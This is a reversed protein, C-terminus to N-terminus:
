WCLQRGQEILIRTIEPSNPKLAVFQPDASGVTVVLSLHRVFKSDVLTVEKQTPDTQAVYEFDFSLQTEEHRNTTM